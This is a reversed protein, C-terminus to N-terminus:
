FIAVGNVPSAVGGPVYCPVSAVFFSWRRQRKCEESLKELDLLEGINCGWGALLVEHMSWEFPTPWREFSPHDSAVASFNEWIFKLVEDSQEVGGLGPPTM